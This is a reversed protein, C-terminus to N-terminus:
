LWYEMVKVQKGFRNICVKYERQVKVEHRHEIDWIRSTLRSCGFLHLAKLPNIRNGEKLYSYIMETQSNCNSENVNENM